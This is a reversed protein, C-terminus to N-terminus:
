VYGAVHGRQKPKAKRIADLAPRAKDGIRDLVNIARLRIFPTEHQLGAILAPMAQDLRGIHCLAEAAAIRVNASPDELAKALADATPAAGKGLAVLGIVGWWRIALEDDELLKLLKPINEPESANAVAAAEILRAVPNAKPDRAVDWPTRGNSRRDITQEPLLGLDGTRRMWAYCEARMRELVPKHAPDAALNKIQHPDTENDYLEEVPKTQFYRAAPGTLKGEEHLKRWVKMTPMQETYSIFQSWPLHPMFNRIYQYRKDRVVRVTDYREAMRDRIAYVYERPKGAKDGLFASGQMHKPIPVGALSLVTPAFDVFSVLRDTRTGPKGPAWKAWKEPVRVILPVHLGSEWVWKKCGPMGAGHDSWFVVITDDALGAEDLAKLHDAVWYDLATINDHYRAWDKRVEPTDPHFPPVPAKAPDHRQDPTLRRTTRQYRPEPARIQSEHCATFNFVAFFPQGQKRARYHAKGSCADWATKPTPFNYDTKSANTCYYGAAKLYEPFCKIHDPLRTTSRMGHSGLTSPYVGTIVCSRNPACVGTIGFAHTYLVGEKAFADLRPTRAYADGYCGLNPSIDECSLWLINPRDPPAEAAFAGTALAVGSATMRLFARRDVRREAPRRWKM